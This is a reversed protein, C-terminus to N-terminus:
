HCVQGKCLEQKTAVDRQKCLDPSSLTRFGAFYKRCINEKRIVKTVDCMKRCLTKRSLCDERDNSPDSQNPFIEHSVMIVVLHHSRQKPTM